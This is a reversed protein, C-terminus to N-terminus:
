VNEIKMRESLFPLDNHRKHLKEIYQVDIAFMAYGKDGEKNHNKITKKDKIVKKITTNEDYDKMYKNNAKVYRYISHCIRGRIYKEVMLLIEINTLLDLKVKTKKLTAQWALGPASLFKAPDLEYIKLCVNRFNEFVDTLLPTDSQVHFDQHEGSLKIEFDKCVRKAHTNNGDTIDEM